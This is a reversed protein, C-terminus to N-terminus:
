ATSLNSSMVPHLDPTSGLYKAIVQLVKTAEPPKALFDSSGVMKARMRDIVGDHGTLIVIPTNQFASTKRLFTCLEYGNTNPMVLDLLILDPKRELLTAIGQLPNLITLVDYGAPTLIQEMTQGIVPSDDICAILKKQPQPATLVQSPQFPAPMDPIPRLGIVGQKILPLISRMVMPLPRKMHLAIDWLTQKGQMLKTLTAAVAPSVQAALQPNNQIVPALEPSFQPMLEQLHGLGSQRWEERLQRAEQLVQDIPLLVTQQAIPTSSQWTSKLSKKEVFGFVVEQVISQIVSKAQVTTIQGQSIAQHLVDVEWLDSNSKVHTLWGSKYCDLCHQRFARYWRRVPHVGGTAYVLRGLYFYLRWSESAGDNESTIILEGTARKQHLALLEHTVKTM